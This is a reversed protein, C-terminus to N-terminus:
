RRLSNCATTIYEKSVKSGPTNIRIVMVDGKLESTVHKRVDTKYELLNLRLSWNFYRSQLLQRTSIMRHLTVGCALFSIDHIFSVLRM